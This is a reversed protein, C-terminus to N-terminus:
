STKFVKLAEATPLTRGPTLITVVLPQLQRQRQHQQKRSPPTAVGATNNKRLTIGMTDVERTTMRMKLSTNQRNYTIDDAACRGNLSMAFLGDVFTLLYIMIRRQTLLRKTSSVFTEYSKSSETQRRMLATILLPSLFPCVLCDGTTRAKLKSVALFPSLCQNHGRRPPRRSSVNYSFKWMNGISSNNHRQAYSYIHM